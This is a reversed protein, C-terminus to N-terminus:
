LRTMQCGFPRGEDFCSRIDGEILWNAASWKERIERLATHCSHNSRFGHSTERFYAGQPSDYITALILYMVQQVVKDRM